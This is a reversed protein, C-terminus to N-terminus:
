VNNIQKSQNTYTQKLQNFRDYNICDFNIDTEINSCSECMRHYEIAQGYKFQPALHNQWKSCVPEM